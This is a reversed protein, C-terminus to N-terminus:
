PGYLRDPYCVEPREFQPQIELDWPGRSLKEEELWFSLDAYAKPHKNRAGRCELNPDHLVVGSANQVYLYTYM